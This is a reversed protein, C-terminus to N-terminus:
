ISKFPTLVAKFYNESGVMMSTKVISLEYHTNVEITPIDGNAWMVFDPMTIYLAELGDSTYFHVYYEDVVNDTTVFNEIIVESNEDSWYITNPQMDTIQYSFYESRLSSGGGSITIDGSGIISQGNITKISTGSVLKPQYDRLQASTALDFNGSGLISNGNITAISTGSVLKDQKKAINTTLQTVASTLNAQTALGSTDVSPTKYSGDDSLFKTGDGTWTLSIVDDSGVRERITFPGYIADTYLEGASLSLFDGYYGVITSGNAGPNNNGIVGNQNYKVFDDTNPIDSKLALETQTITYYRKSTKDLELSYCECDKAYCIYRYVEEATSSGVINFLLNKFEFQSIRCTAIFIEPVYSFKASESEDLTGSTFNPFTVIPISDGGSEITIDGAGLISEGNITKINTGSVLKEQRGNALDYASKVASPTAALSTSTSSTSTSLKTVGYKSTSAAPINAVGSTAVSTGNASVGTITGANKTFGWDSVTSETVASPIDSKLALEYYYLLTSMESVILELSTNNVIGSFHCELGIHGDTTKQTKQLVCVKENLSSSIVLTTINDDLCTNLADGSLLLEYFGQGTSFNNAIEIFGINSEGAGSCDYLQGHTWIKQVDKIFAISQWKIDPVGNIVSGLGGIQYQTDTENYAVKLTSFVQYSVIHKFMSM